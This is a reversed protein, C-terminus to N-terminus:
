SRFTVITSGISRPSCVHTIANEADQPTYVQDVVTQLIGDNVYEALKDLNM